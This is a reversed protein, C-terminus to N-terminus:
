TGSAQGANTSRGALPSGSMRSIRASTSCDSENWRRFHAPLLEPAYISTYVPAHPYLAHFAELVREAGGYQNLYDHVLAINLNHTAHQTNRTTLEGSAVRFEGSGARREQAQQMPATASAIASPAYLPQQPPIPEM